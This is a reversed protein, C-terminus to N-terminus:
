LWWSAAADLHRRVRYGAFSDDGPRQRKSFGCTLASSPSSTAGPGSNM